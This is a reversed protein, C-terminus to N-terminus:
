LDRGSCNNASFGVGGGGDNVPFAGSIEDSKENFGSLKQNQNPLQTLFGLEPSTVGYCSILTGDLGGGVPPVHYSNEPLSRGNCRIPRLKQPPPQKLHHETQPKTSQDDSIIDATVPFPSIPSVQPVQVVMKIAAGRTNMPQLSEVGPKESDLEVM